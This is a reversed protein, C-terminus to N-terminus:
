LEDNAVAFTYTTTGAGTINEGAGTDFSYQQGAGVGLRITPEAGHSNPLNIYNAKLETATFTMAASIDADDPAIDLDNDVGDGDRDLDANDGTGDGDLDSWENPDTPFVDNDNDVGDNDWDSDSNDGIGDLDGDSWENPDFVFADVDNTFGDNDMDDDLSDITGDSDSDLGIDTAEYFQIRPQIAMYWVPEA